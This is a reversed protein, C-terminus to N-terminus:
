FLGDRQMAPIIAKAFGATSKAVDRPEATRTTASWAPEPEAVVFRYQQVTAPEYYGSWMGTYYGYYFRRRGYYPPPLPSPTVVLESEQKVMRTILVGDAGADAVAKQLIDEPIPGDKPVLTHSPVAQVGAEALSQAFTDEFARRVSAQTSIGVVLVKTLRAGTGQPDKWTNTVETTACGATALLAAAALLLNRM